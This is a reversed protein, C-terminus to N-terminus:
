HRGARSHACDAAGAAPEAGPAPAVDSHGIPVGIMEAIDYYSYGEIDALYITAKFCEPLGDLAQRIESHAFQGLM